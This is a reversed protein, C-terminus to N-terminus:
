KETLELENKTLLMDKSLWVFDSQFSAWLAWVPHTYSVSLVWSSGIIMVPITITDDLYVVFIDRLRSGIEKYGPILEKELGDVGREM